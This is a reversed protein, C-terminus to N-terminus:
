QAETTTPPTDTSRSPARSSGAMKALMSTVGNSVEGLTVQTTRVGFYYGLATGIAGTMWDPVSVTGGDRLLAVLAFAVGGMVLAFALSWQMVERLRDPM